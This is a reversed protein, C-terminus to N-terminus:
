ITRDHTNFLKSENIRKILDQVKKLAFLEKPKIFLDGHKAYVKIKEPRSLETSDKM